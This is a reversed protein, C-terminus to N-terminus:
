YLNIIVLLIFWHLQEYEFANLESRLGKLSSRTKLSEYYEEPVQSYRYIKGTNYEIDMTQTTKDYGASHALNSHKLLSRTISLGNFDTTLKEKDSAFHKNANEMTDEHIITLQTAITEIILPIEALDPGIDIFEKKLQKYEVINENSMFKELSEGYKELHETYKAHYLLFEELKAILQNRIFNPEM